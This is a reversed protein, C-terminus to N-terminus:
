ALRLFFYNFLESSFLQKKLDRRIEDYINEIGEKGEFFRIKTRQNKGVQLADFVSAAKIFDNELFQLEKQQRSIYALLDAYGIAEYKRTNKEEIKTL